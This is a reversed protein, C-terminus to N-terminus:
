CNGFPQCGGRAGNWFSRNKAQCIIRSYQLGLIAIICKRCMATWSHQSRLSHKGSHGVSASCAKTNQGLLKRSVVGSMFGVRGVPTEYSRYSLPEVVSERLLGQGRGRLGDAAIIEKLCNMFGASRLIIPWALSGRAGWIRCSPLPCQGQERFAM